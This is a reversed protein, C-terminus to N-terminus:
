AKGGNGIFAEYKERQEERSLAVLVEGSNGEDSSGPSVSKTYDRWPEDPGLFTAAHKIYKQDKGKCAEAYNKTATLLDDHSSGGRRRATYAKLAKKKELKRPYSEWLKNFETEFPASPPQEKRNNKEIISSRGSDPVDSTGSDPVDTWVDALPLVVRYVNTKNTASRRKKELWGMKELHTTAYSVKHPLTGAREAIQERSPWAKDGNGQFSAISTYVKLDLLTLGEEQLLAVPVMGYIGIAVKNNISM